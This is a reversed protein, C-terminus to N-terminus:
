LPSQFQLWGAISVKKLVTYTASAWSQMCELEQYCHISLQQLVTHAAFTTRSLGRVLKALALM